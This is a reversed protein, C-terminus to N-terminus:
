ARWRARAGARRLMLSGVLALVSSGPPRHLRLTVATIVALTGEPVRSCVPWTTARTTKQCDALHSVISGDPLVAEIGAVQARTM